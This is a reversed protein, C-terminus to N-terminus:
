DVLEVHQGAIFVNSAPPSTGMSQVKNKPWSANLGMMRSATSFGSLCATMDDSNSAPLAIDDAYDLDTFM